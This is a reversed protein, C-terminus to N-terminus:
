AKAGGGKGGDGDRGTAAGAEPSTLGANGADAVALSLDIHKATLNVEDPGNVAGGDVWVTFCFRGFPNRDNAFSPLVRHLVRDSSWGDMIPALAVPAEFLPRLELEGGNAAAWGENLYVLCTLARKNPPGPNDYHLPFCGGQGENRQIKLTVGDERCALALDPLHRALARPFALSSFLGRFGALDFPALRETDHLDAEWIFPKRLTSSGFRFMHPLLGGSTSLAEVERRLLHAATSGLAGDVVVYGKSVLEECVESTVAATLIANWDFGTPDVAGVASVDAVPSAM